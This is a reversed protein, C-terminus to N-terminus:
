LALDSEFIRRDEPDKIAQAAEAAKERYADATVADGSAKAARSMGEYAYALDFDAFGNDQTIVLCRHAHHRAPEGRGLVAYVRSVLWEGRARELPGGAVTWHHLSAHAANLMAEDDEPTRDAKDLLSWTLQNLEVAHTRACDTM